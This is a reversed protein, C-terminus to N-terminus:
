PFAFPGSATRKSMYETTLTNSDSLGWPQHSVSRPDPESPVQAGAGRGGARSDLSASPTLVMSM